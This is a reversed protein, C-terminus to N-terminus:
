DVSEDCYDFNGPIHLLISAHKRCIQNIAPPQECRFKLSLGNPWVLDPCIDLMPQMVFAREHARPHPVVLRPPNEIRMDGFMILDLDITRPSGYYVRERGGMQEIWQLRELLQDATLTTVVQVAANMYEPQDGEVGVAESLYVHSVAKVQCDVRHLRNIAQQINEERPEINSGLSIYATTM